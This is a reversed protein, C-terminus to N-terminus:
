KTKQGYLPKKLVTQTEYISGGREARPLSMRVPAEVMRVQNTLEGRLINANLADWDGSLPWADAATYAALLL